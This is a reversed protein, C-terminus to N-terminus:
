LRDTGPELGQHGMRYFCKGEPLHKKLLIRQGAPSIASNCLSIRDSSIAQPLTRHSENNHSLLWEGARKQKSRSM